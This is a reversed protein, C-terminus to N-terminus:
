ISNPIASLESFASSIGDQLLTSKEISAISNKASANLALNLLVQELFGNFVRPYVITAMSTTPMINNGYIAPYM